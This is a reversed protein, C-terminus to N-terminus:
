SMGNYPALAISRDAVLITCEPRRISPMRASQTMGSSAPSVLRTAYDPIDLLTLM